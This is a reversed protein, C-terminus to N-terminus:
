AAEPLHRRPWLAAAAGPGDSRGAGAALGSDPFGETNCGALWTTLPMDESPPGQHTCCTAMAQLARLMCEPENATASCLQSGLCAQKTHRICGHRVVLHPLVAAASRGATQCRTNVLACCVQVWPGAGCLSSTSSAAARYAWRCREHQMGPWGSPGGPLELHPHRQEQRRTLRSIRQM